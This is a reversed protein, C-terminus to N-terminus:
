QVQLLRIVEDPLQSPALHVKVPKQNTTTAGPMPPAPQPPSLHPPLDIYLCSCLVTYTDLDWFRLYRDSCAGIMIRAKPLLTVCEVVITANSQM